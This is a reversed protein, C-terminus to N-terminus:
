GNLRTVKTGTRAADLQRFFPSSGAEGTAEFPLPAPAPAGAANMADEHYRLAGTIRAGEEASFSEHWIDSDVCASKELRLRRTKITGRARGRVVVEEAVVEGEVNAGADIILMKCRVSGFVTGKILLDGDSELDGKMTLRENIISCQVDPGPPTAQRAPRGTESSAATQAAPLIPGDSKRTNFM